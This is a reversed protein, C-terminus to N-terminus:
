ARVNKVTNLECAHNDQTKLMSVEFHNPKISMLKSIKNILGAPLLIALLVVLKNLIGPICLNKRYKVSKLSCTVVENPTMWGTKKAGNEKTNRGLKKHFDTYTFGPCLCQAYIEFQRLEMNLSTTFNKLFSKTSTYMANDSTPIYAAMSSVNIIIGSRQKIMKPLIKHILLVTSVVHVQLMKLQNEVKDEHFVENLGFGANNVLVDISEQQNMIEMLLKVDDAKELDAIVVKVDVNYSNELDVSIENLLNQKRGTVILDYGLQALQYAFSKGIGSTAGTIVATKRGKQPNNGSIENITKM